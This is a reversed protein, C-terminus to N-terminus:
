RRLTMEIAGALRRVVWDKQTCSWAPDATTSGAGQGNTTPVRVLIKGSKPRTMRSVQHLVASDTTSLADEHEAIMDLTIGAVFVRGLSPSGDRHLSQALAVGQM